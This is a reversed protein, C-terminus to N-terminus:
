GDVKTSIISSVKLAYSINISLSIHFYLSSKDLKLWGIEFLTLLSITLICSYSYEQYSFVLLVNNIRACGSRAGVAVM